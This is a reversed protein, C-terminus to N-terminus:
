HAADCYGLLAGLQMWAAKGLADNERYTGSLVSLCESVTWEHSHRTAISEKQRERYERQRQANTKTGIAPNKPPRGRKSERNEM